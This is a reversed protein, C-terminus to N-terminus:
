DPKIEFFLISISDLLGLNDLQTLLEIYLILIILNVNRSM